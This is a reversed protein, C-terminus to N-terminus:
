KEQTTPNSSSRTVRAGLFAENIEEKTLEGDLSAAALRELVQAVAVFGALAAAKWLPIGGVISAGSLIGLSSMAFTAFIRVLIDKAVSMNLGKM